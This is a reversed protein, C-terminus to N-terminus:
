MVPFTIGHYDIREFRPDWSFICIERRTPYIAITSASLIKWENKEPHFYSYSVAMNTPESLQTFNQIKDEGPNILISEEGLKVGIKLNTMNLYMSNGGKFKELDKVRPQFLLGSADKAAPILIILAKNVDEPVLAQALTLYIFKGPEKPNEIKRVLKLIGDAPIKVPDSPSRKSLTVQIIEQGSMISVPNELGEPMSTYIFWAVRGRAEKEEGSQEDQAILISSSLIGILLYLLRYKM